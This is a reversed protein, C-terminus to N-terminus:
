PRDLMREANMEVQAVDSNSDDLDLAGSDSSHKSTISYGDGTEETM